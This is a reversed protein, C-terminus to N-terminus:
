NKASTLAKAAKGVAERDCGCKIIFEEESMLNEESQNECVYAIYLLTISDLEDGKGTGIANMARNYRDYLSKDRSKLQYLAYFTLTMKVSSGDSFEFDYTTNLKPTEM